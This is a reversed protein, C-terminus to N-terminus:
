GYIAKRLPELRKGYRKWLAVSDTYIPRRVQALSATSVIRKNKHFNLCADDWHLGCFDLLLQTRGRQDAVLEEYEITHIFGPLVTHWHDMLDLYLNYYQGLETMDYAYGHMGQFDNKFISLCNDMPDRKCHIIKSNPLIAKILGIRIFNYPMKDTIFLANGSFGRIRGIYESGMSMYTESDLDPICLPFLASTDGTCIEQYLNALFPLEGAGHVLPHSAIIQEVLTTGSRPMGVIFIPTGDQNGSGNHLSFFEDTFVQKIREFFARSEAISFEYSKRKLTNAELICEFAKEYDNLDEYAKGLAFGLDIRDGDPMDERKDYISKMATVVDDVESFRVIATLGKFANAHDPKIAIAKKFCDIADEKNGLENFIIGSNNYAEAFEPQCTLARNYSALADNLKGQAKLARGLNNHAKAYDPKMAIARRYSDVAEELRGQAQLVIGLNHHTEAADPRLSLAKRLCAISEDPRGLEHLLIGLDNLAEAYAPRLNLAQRFCDAAQGLEGQARLVLALGYHGEALAPQLTVARKLSAAALDLRGQSKLVIGLGYHAPAYGPQLSIAQRYSAAAETLMGRAGFALGLNNYAEVYDPKLDLARRFSAAAEAPKSMSLLATGLNNHAEFHDPQLGLLHHYAAAAETTKGQILLVYGLNYAAEAYDPRSDLAKRLLEAAVDNRGSRHALMGLNHLAEPHTPEASLVQRYLAEAQQLHGAQQLALGQRLLNQRDPDGAPRSSARSSTKLLGSPLRRTKNKKAM